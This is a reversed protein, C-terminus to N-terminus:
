RQPSLAPCIESKTTEWSNEEANATARAVGSELRSPLFGAAMRHLIEASATPDIGRMRRSFPAKKSFPSRSRSGASATALMTETVKALM